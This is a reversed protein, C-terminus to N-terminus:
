SPPADFRRTDMSGDGYVIKVTVFRAAPAVPVFLQDADMRAPWGESERVTFPWTRDLADGDFSYRIEKLAAKFSLLTTFYVVRRGPELDQFTVWAVNGLAQKTFQLFQARADFEVDFPGHERGKADTYKVALTRRQWFAGPVRVTTNPLPAGTMPNTINTSGTSTFAAEGDLRYFLETATRDALVLVALWGDNGPMGTLTVRREPPIRNLIAENLEEVADRPPPQRPPENAVPRPEPVLARRDTAWWAGAAVLLVVGVGAAIPVWKLQKQQRLRDVALAIEAPADGQPELITYARLTPPVAEIPTDDTRVPLIAPRRRKSLAAAIALETLAYSPSAVSSRSILYVLVDSSGIATRIRQGFPDGGGLDDRDFFVAHGETELVRCVREALAREETAYSLFVEV